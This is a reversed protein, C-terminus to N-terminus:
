RVTPCTERKGRAGGVAKRWCAAFGANTMDADADVSASAVTSIAEFMPDTRCRISSAIAALSRGDPLTRSTATDFVLGSSGRYLSRSM